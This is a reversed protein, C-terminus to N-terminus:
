HSLRLKAIIQKALLPYPLFLHHGQKAYITPVPEAGRTVVNRSRVDRLDFDVTDRDYVIAGRPMRNGADAEPDVDPANLNGHRWIRVLYRCGEKKARTSVAKATQETIVIAEVTEGDSLARGSLEEALKTADYGPRPPID